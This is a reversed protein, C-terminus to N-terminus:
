AKPKKKAKYEESDERALAIEDPNETKSERNKLITKAHEAIATRIFDEADAAGSLRTAKEIKLWEKVSFTFDFDSQSSDIQDKFLREMSKIAWKPFTGESFWNNLTGRKCGLEDALWQRDKRLNKLLEEVKSPEIKM